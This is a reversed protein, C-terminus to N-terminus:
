FVLLPQHLPLISFLPQPFITVCRLVIGDLGEEAARSADEACMIGKLVIRGKWHQRLWPLDSWDLGEDIFSGTIRGLGGGRKDNVPKGVGTMMPIGQQEDDMRVREDAERKGALPSDVTLFITRIGLSWVKRLLAESNSRTKSVYLQFFLPPPSNPTPSLSSVIDEIPFSANTSVQTLQKTM